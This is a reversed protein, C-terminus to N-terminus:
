AARRSELRAKVIAEGRGGRACRFEGGAAEVEDIVRWIVSDDIDRITEASCTWDTVGVLATAAAQADGYSGFVGILSGSTHVLHLESSFPGLGHIILGEADTPHAPVTLTSGAGMDLSITDTM